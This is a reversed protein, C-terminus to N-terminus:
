DVFPFFCFFLFSFLLVVFLFFLTWNNIIVQALAQKELSHCVKGAGSEGNVLISQSRRADIMDDYARGALSFLHPELENRRQVDTAERYQRTLAATYLPVRRYPNVSLIIGGVSTYIKDADYRRKLNWLMREETLEDCKILDSVENM